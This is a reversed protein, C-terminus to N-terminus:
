FKLLPHEKPALLKVLDHMYDVLRYNQVEDISVWKYEEHEEPSLSIAGGPYAAIFILRVFQKNKGADVNSTYSFLGLNKINLGTEEETERAAGVAPDEGDELTGGPIDWCDPLIDNTRSRKLILIQKKDNFIVTHVILGKDM